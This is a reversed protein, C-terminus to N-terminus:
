NVSLRLGTQRFMARRFLNSQQCDRPRAPLHSNPDQDSNVGRLQARANPFCNTYSDVYASLAIIARRVRTSANFVLLEKGTAPFRFLLVCAWEKRHRSMMQPVAVALKFRDDALTVSRSHFRFQTCIDSDYGIDTDSLEVIKREDCTMRRSATAARDPQGLRDSCMLCM